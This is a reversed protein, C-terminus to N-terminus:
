ASRRAIFEEVQRLVGDRNRNAIRAIPVGAYVTWPEFEFGVPVFSLAGIAVGEPIDNGPMVVSNAGVGIHDGFSVDGTIGEAAGIMIADNVFDNSTCWVRVGASLSSFDGISFLREPGGAVSCGTAIHTWDGIHVRTSFYCYDDVISHEGIEFHDEVRLRINPSVIPVDNITTHARGHRARGDVVHKLAEGFAASGQRIPDSHQGSTLEEDLIEPKDRDRRGRRVGLHEFPNVQELGHDASLATERHDLEARAVSSPDHICGRCDAGITIQRGRQRRDLGFRGVKSPELKVAAVVAYCRCEDVGRDGRTTSADVERDTVRGGPVPLRDHVFAPTWRMHIGDICHGKAVKKPREIVDIENVAVDLAGLGIHELVGRRVDVRLHTSHVYASM